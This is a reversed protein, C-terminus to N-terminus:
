GLAARSGVGHGAWRLAANVTCVADYARVHGRGRFYRRGSLYEQRLQDYRHEQWSHGEVHAVCWDPSVELTAGAAVARAALDVDEYYLFYGPDFGGLEEFFARPVLMAVGSLFGIRRSDEMRSLRRHNVRSVLPLKLLADEIVTRPPGWSVMPRGDPGTVRPGVIVRGSPLETLSWRTIQADPNLVLLTDARSGAALSNVGRGFGCNDPCHEGRSGFGARRCAELAVDLTEGEPSNDHVAVRVGDGILQLSTIALGITEANRYGVILAEITM